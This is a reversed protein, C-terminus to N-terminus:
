METTKARGPNRIGNRRGRAESFTSGGWWVEGKGLAELRELILLM